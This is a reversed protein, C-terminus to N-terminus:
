PNFVTDTPQIQGGSTKQKAHVYEKLGVNLFDPSRARRSFDEDPM